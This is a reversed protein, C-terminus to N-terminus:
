DAAGGTYRALLEAAAAAGLGVWEPPQLVTAEAGLRLLLERLWRESVVSLELLWGDGDPQVSRTPFREAVWVGGTPVRLLVAPLDADAFWADGVPVDVERAEDIVGTPECREIRDIRFKREEGSRHDDAIVYWFGRDVFVRRPTIERETREDAAPSWYVVRLRECRNAAATVTEAAPPAPTDVVVAGGLADDGLAAALKALARALAGDPDAGPVQMAARAATLLSFGEPATLRLPRTFLRPVGAYVMGEDIFVDVMEDVFPPLGCMAALELDKVLEPESLEFRECMEAVPVEGREMLWPLMVLLRRLREGAPRPGRRAASM